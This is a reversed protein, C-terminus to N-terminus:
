ESYKVYEISYLGYVTCVGGSTLPGCWVHELNLHRMAYAYISQLDL